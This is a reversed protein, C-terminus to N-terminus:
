QQRGSAGRHSINNNETTLLIKYTMVGPFGPECLMGTTFADIRTISWRRGVYGDLVRTVPSGYRDGVGSPSRAVQMRKTVWAM